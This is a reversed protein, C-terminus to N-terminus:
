PLFFFRQKSNMLGLCSLNQFVISICDCWCKETYSKILEAKASGIHEHLRANWFFDILNGESLSDGTKKSYQKLVGSYIGHKETFVTIIYSREKLMKKSIIIGKDRFNM